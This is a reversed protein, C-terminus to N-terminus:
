KRYSLQYMYSKQRIVVNTQYTQMDFKFYRHLILVIEENKWMCFVFFYTENTQDQGFYFYKLFFWKVNDIYNFM